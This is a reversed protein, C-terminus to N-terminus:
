RLGEFLDSEGRRGGNVLSFARYFNRQSVLVRLQEDSLARLIPFGVIQSAHCEIARLATELHASGDIRTTIAWDPWAVASREVGDITMSVGGFLATYLADEAPSDVLYYLKSVHHPARQEADIYSADAALVIAAGTLQSIAIHDPHGYSGDPGFTVVVHPRIWRLHTVIRGTAERLNAQDLDGDIYDLFRTERLGLAHAAALLEKTRIRAMAAMGPDEREDGMWGREGRTATVLYTQVGEAAYKALTSAMGLSEDDPHAFVCLLRLEQDM